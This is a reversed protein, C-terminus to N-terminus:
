NLFRSALSAIGAVAVIVGMVVLYITADVHALNRTRLFRFRRSM